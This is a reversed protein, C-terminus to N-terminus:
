ASTTKKQSIKLEKSVAYLLLILLGLIIMPVNINLLLSLAVFVFFGMCECKILAFNIITDDRIELFTLWTFLIIGTFLICGALIKSVQIAFTLGILGVLLICSLNELYERKKETM